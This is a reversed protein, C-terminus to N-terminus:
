CDFVNFINILSLISIADTLQVLPQRYKFEDKWFLNTIIKHIKTGDAWYIRQNQNRTTSTMWLIFWNKPGFIGARTECVYGVTIEHCLIIWRIALLSPTILKLIQTCFYRAFHHSPFLINPSIHPLCSLQTVVIFLSKSYSLKTSKVVLHLIKEGKENLVKSKVNWWNLNIEDKIKTEHLMNTSPVVMLRTWNEWGNRKCILIFLYLKWWCFMVM